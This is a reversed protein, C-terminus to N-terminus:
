RFAILGDVSLSVVRGPWARILERDHTVCIVCGSFGTIMERLVPASLPSLNRSPEDLLLVNHKELIMRLLFLKAKQGGSLLRIPHEMEERTFRLAGLGTRIATLQEKEGSTHLAEVPTRDPPLTDLYNQPMYGASLDGRPLLEEAIRRLLTTKGSGNPGVILVKEPGRIHLRIDRALTRGGATLEPLNLDLVVKGEPLAIGGAWSADMAREAWPRETMAEDERTFRHELSKVAKMKKKLLRGGHPDRRSISEQAHAVREEIQRLREDRAAKERREQQAQQEQRRFADARESVYADYPLNALTWRPTQRGRLSELHLIRTATRRLLTEDHSVFVIPLGCGAMMRELAELAQTDLDNTPEDLLLLSPGELLLLTLRLKVREGGSLAAAPSPLYPLAPDLGTVACAAALEEWGSAAFAPHSACYDYVSADPPFDAEQPLYGIREGPCAIRGQVACWAPHEPWRAILQLLTSKGDGEEGIVALRDAGSVTFSLDEFLVRLDRAHTVTLHQVQLM